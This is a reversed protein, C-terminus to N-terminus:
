KHGRKEKGPAIVKQVAEMLMAQMESNTGFFLSEFRRWIKQLKWLDKGGVVITPENSTLEQVNLVFEVPAMDPLTDDVAVIDYHRTHLLSLAENGDLAYDVASGVRELAASSIVKWDNDSSAVLTRVM